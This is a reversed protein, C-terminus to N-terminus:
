LIHYDYTNEPDVFFRCEDEHVHGKNAKLMMCLSNVRQKKFCETSCIQDGVDLSQGAFLSGNANTDTESNFLTGRNHGTGRHCSRAM